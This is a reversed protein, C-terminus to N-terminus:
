KTAWYTVYIIDYVTFPSYTPLTFVIPSSVAPIATNISNGVVSSNFNIIAGMAPILSAAATLTYSYTTTTGAPLATLVITEVHMVPNVVSPPAPPAPRVLNVSSQCFGIGAFILSLFLTKM